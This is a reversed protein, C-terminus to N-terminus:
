SVLYTMVLHLKIKSVTSSFSSLQKIVFKPGGVAIVFVSLQVSDKVIDVIYLFPILIGMPIMLFIEWSSPERFHPLCM